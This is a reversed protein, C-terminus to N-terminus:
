PDDNVPKRLSFASCKSSSSTRVADGFLRRALTLEQNKLNSFMFDKPDPKKKNWSFEEKEKEKKKAAQKM